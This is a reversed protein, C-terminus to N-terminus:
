RSINHTHSLIDRALAWNAEMIGVADFMLNNEKGEKVSFM